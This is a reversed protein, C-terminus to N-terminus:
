IKNVASPESLPKLATLTEILEDSDKAWVWPTRNGQRKSLLPYMSKNKKAERLTKRAHRPDIKLEICLDALTVVLNDM